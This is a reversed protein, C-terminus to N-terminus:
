PARCSVARPDGAFAAIVHTRCRRGAASGEPTCWVSFSIRAPVRGEPEFRWVPEGPADELLLTGIASLADLLPAGGEGPFQFGLVAVGADPGCAAIGAQRGDVGIWGTRRFWGDGEDPEALHWSAHRARIGVAYWSDPVPDGTRSGAAAITEAMRDFVAHRPADLAQATGCMALTLLILATVTRM